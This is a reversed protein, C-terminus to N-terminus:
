RLEYQEETTKKIERATVPKKLKPVNLFDELFEKGSQRPKIVIERDRLEFVVESGPKIGLYDRVDKPLVVQGKEGVNRRMLMM